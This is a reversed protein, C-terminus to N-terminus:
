YEEGALVQRAYITMCGCHQDFQPDRHEGSAINELAMRYRDREATVTDLAALLAPIDSRAAAIFTRDLIMQDRRNHDYGNPIWEMFRPGGKPEAEWEPISYVSGDDSWPGPTAADARARIAILEDDM